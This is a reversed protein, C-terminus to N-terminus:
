PALSRKRYDAILTEVRDEDRDEVPVLLETVLDTLEAIRRNLQRNEQAEAELARLRQHINLANRAKAAFNSDSM